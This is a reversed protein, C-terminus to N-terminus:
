CRLGHRPIRGPAAPRAAPRRVMAIALDAIDAAVQQAELRGGPKFWQAPADCMGFISLATVVPDVARFRSRAVGDRIVRVYANLLERRGQRQMQRAHEPLEQESRSLVALHSGHALIWRGYAVVMAHLTAVPDTTVAANTLLTKRIGKLTIEEVLTELVEEKNRLHYYFAPRILGVADAINQMSTAAFGRDQFLAAAAAAIAEKVGGKAAM